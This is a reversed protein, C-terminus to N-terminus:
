YYQHGHCCLLTHRLYYLTGQQSCMVYHSCMRILLVLCSMILVFSHQSSDGVKISWTNTATDRKFFWNTKTINQMLCPPLSGLTECIYSIQDFECAGPFLPWGLYLEALVCGLSGMDIAEDFPVGMIVEPARPVILIHIVYM